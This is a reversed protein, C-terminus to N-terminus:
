KTLQLAARDHEERKEPSLAMYEAKSLTKGGGSGGKGQGGGAPGLIKKGQQGQKFGEQKAKVIAHSAIGLEDAADIAALLEGRPDKSYQAKYIETARDYFAENFEPNPSKDNGMDLSPFMKLMRSQASQQTQRFQTVQSNRQNFAQERTSFQDELLDEIFPQILSLFGGASEVGKEPDDGFYLALKKKQEDTFKRAREKKEEAPVLMMNGENDTAIKIGASELTKRLKAANAETQSAKQTLNTHAAFLEEATKYKGFQPAAEGENGAEGEDGQGGAEGAPAKGQGNNEPAGGQGGEGGQGGAAGEGGAAGAGENEARQDILIFLLKKILNM